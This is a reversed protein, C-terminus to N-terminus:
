PSVNLVEMLGWDRRLNLRVWLGVVWLHWHTTFIVCPALDFYYLTTRGTDLLDSM